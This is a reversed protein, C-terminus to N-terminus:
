QSTLRVSSVRDQEVVIVRADIKARALASGLAQEVLEVTNNAKSRHMAFVFRLGPRAVRDLLQAASENSLHGRDSAIRQKLWWPYPGELLMDPDHNAELALLDCGSLADLLSPSAQGLDTAFGLRLGEKTHLVFGAPERADHSISFPMISLGGVEFTRGARIPVVQWDAGRRAGMARSTGRTMYVSAYPTVAGLGTIHDTHEHSVLVASIQRPAMGVQELRGKIARASFGCDVM